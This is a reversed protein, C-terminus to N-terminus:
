GGSSSPSRDPSDPEARSGGNAEYREVAEVLALDAAIQEEAPGGERKLVKAWAVALRVVREEVTECAERVLAETEPDAETSVRVGRAEAMAVQDAWTEDRTRETSM